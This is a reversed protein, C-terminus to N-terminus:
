KQFGREGLLLLGRYPKSNKTLQIPLEDLLLKNIFLLHVDNNDNEAVTSYPTTWDEVELMKECVQVSNQKYYRVEDFSVLFKYNDMEFIATERIMDAYLVPSLQNAIDSLNLASVFENVSKFKGSGFEYKSLYPKDMKSVNKKYMFHFYTSDKNFHTSARIVDGNRIISFLRDDYYVEHKKKRKTELM